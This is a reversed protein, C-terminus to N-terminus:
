PPTARALPTYRTSLPHLEAEKDSLDAAMSRLRAASDGQDGLETEKRLGNLLIEVPVPQM